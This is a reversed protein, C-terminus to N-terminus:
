AHTCVPSVVDFATKAPGDVVITGRMVPMGDDLILWYFRTRNHDRTPSMRYVLGADFCRRVLGAPIGAHRRRMAEFDTFRFEDYTSSDVYLPGSTLNSDYCFRRTKADHHWTPTTILAANDRIKASLASLAAKYETNM